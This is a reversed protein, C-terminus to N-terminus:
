CAHLLAVDADRLSAATEQEVARASGNAGPGRARAHHRVDSTSAQRARAPRRELPGARFLLTVMENTAQPTLMSDRALEAGSLGPEADAVSLISHQPLTLGVCSGPRGARCPPFGSAAPASGGMRAASDTVMATMMDDPERIIRCPGSSM